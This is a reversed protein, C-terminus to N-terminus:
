LSVPSLAALDRYDSARGDHWASPLDNVGARDLTGTVRRWDFAGERDSAGQNLGPPLHGVKPTAYRYPTPSCRDLPV